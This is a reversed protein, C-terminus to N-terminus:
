ENSTNMTNERVILCTHLWKVMCTGTNKYQGVVGTFNGLIITQIKGISTQYEKPLLIASPTNLHTTEYYKYIWNFHNQNCM